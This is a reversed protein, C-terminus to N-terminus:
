RVMRLVRKATSYFLAGRTAWGLLRKPGAWAVLAIGGVILAPNRAATRIAGIGRDLSSLRSEIEQAQQSLHQRQVALRAKLNGHHANLQDFRESM